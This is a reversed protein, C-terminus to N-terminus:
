QSQIENFPINEFISDNHSRVSYVFPKWDLFHEFWEWVNVEWTLIGFQTIIKLFNNQYLTDFEIISEKDGFFFSGPFRWNVKSFNITPSRRYITPMVLVNSKLPTIGLKNIIAKTNQINTIFHFIGFDIWAFHTSNFVNNDIAKRVFETKSNMCTIYNFTDKDNNRIAPLVYNINMVERYARLESLQIKEVFVSTSTLKDKFMEYYDPSLYVHININSDILHQFLSMYTDLSRCSPREEKM